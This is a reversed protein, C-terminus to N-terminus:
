RNRKKNEYVIISDDALYYCVVFRRDQTIAPDGLLYGGFRLIKGDLEVLKKYDKRPAKGVLSFCSYLGFISILIIICKHESICTKHHIVLWPSIVLKTGEWVIRKAVLDLILHSLHRKLKLPPILSIWM